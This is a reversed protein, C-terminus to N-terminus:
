EISPDLYPHICTDQHIYLSETSSCIYSLSYDYDKGPTRNAHSPSACRTAFLSYMCSVLASSKERGENEDEQVRKGPM